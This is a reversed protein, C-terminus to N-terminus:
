VITVSRIVSMDCCNNNHQVCRIIEFMHSDKNGSSWVRSGPFVRVDYTPCLDSHLRSTM